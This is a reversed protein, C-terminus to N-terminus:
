GIARARRRRVSGDAQPEDYEYDYAMTTNSPVYHQGSNLPRTVPLFYLELYASQDEDGHDHDMM